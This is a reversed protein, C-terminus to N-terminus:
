FIKISTKHTGPIMHMSFYFFLKNNVDQPGKAKPSFTAHYYHNKFLSTNKKKKKKKKLTLHRARTDHQTRSRSRGYLKNSPVNQQVNMNHSRACVCRVDHSKSIKQKNALGDRCCTSHNYCCCFSFTLSFSVHQLNLNLSFSSTHCLFTGM